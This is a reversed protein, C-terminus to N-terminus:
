LRNNWDIATLMTEDENLHKHQINWMCETACVFEVTIFIVHMTCVCTYISVLCVTFINSFKHFISLLQPTHFWTFAFVSLFPATEIAWIVNIHAFIWLWCCGQYHFKSFFFSYHMNSFNYLLRYMINFSIANCQQSNLTNVDMRLLLAYM